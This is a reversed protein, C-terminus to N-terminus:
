LRPIKVPFHDSPSTGRNPCRCKTYVKDDRSRLQACRKLRIHVSPLDKLRPNGSILFTNKSFIDRTPYQLSQSARSGIKSQHSFCLASFFSEQLPRCVASPHTFPSELGKWLWSTGSAVAETNADVWLGLCQGQNTQRSCRDPSLFNCQTSVVLIAPGVEIRLIM